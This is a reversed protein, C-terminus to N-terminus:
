TLNQLGNLGTLIGGGNHLVPLPCQFLEAAHKSQFIQEILREEQCLVWGLGQGCVMHHPPAASATSSPRISSLRNWVCTNILGYNYPCRLSFGEKGGKGEPGSARKPRRCFTGGKAPNPLSPSRGARLRKPSPLPSIKQLM